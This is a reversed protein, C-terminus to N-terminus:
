RSIRRMGTLPTYWEPILHTGPEAYRPGCAYDRTLLQGGDWLMFLTFSLLCWRISKSIRSVVTVVLTAFMPLLWEAVLKGHANLNLAMLIGFILYPITATLISKLDLAVTRRPTAVAVAIALLCGFYLIVAHAPATLM